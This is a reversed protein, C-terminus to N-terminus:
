IPKRNTINRVMKKENLIIKKQIDTFYLDIKKTERKKELGSGKRGYTNEEEMHIRKWKDNLM